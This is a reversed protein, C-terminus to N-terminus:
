YRMRGRTARELGGPHPMQYKGILAQPFDMYQILKKEVLPGLALAGEGRRRAAPM